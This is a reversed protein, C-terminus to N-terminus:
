LLRMFHNQIKYGFWRLIRTETPILLSKPLANIALLLPEITLILLATYIAKLGVRQANCM